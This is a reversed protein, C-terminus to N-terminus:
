NPFARQLQDLIPLELCATPNVIRACALSQESVVSNQFTGFIWLFIGAAIRFTVFPPRHFDIM